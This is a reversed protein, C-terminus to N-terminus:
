IHCKRRCIQRMDVLNKSWDSSGLLTSFVRKRGLLIKFHSPDLIYESSSSSCLVFSLWRLIILLLSLCNPINNKGLSM